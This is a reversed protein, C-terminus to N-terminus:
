SRRQRAKGRSATKTGAAPKSVRAPEASKDILAVALGREVLSVIAASRTEIGQAKGWDVAATLVTEPIRITV